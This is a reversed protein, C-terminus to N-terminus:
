SQVPTVEDSQNLAPFQDVPTGVLPSSTDMLVTVGFAVTTPAAPACALIKLMPADPVPESLTWFPPVTLSALMPKMPTLEAEVPEVVAAPAPEDQVSAPTRVPPEPAVAVSPTCLPPATLSTMPRM